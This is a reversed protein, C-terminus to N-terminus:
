YNYRFMGISSGIMGIAIVSKYEGQWDLLAEQLYATHDGQSFHKVGKDSEIEAVIQDHEILWARFSSTGWDIAVFKM